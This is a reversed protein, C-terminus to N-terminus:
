SEDWIVEESEYGLSEFYKELPDQAPVDASRLSHELHLGISQSSRGPLNPLHIAMYLATEVWMTILTGPYKSVYILTGLQLERRKM